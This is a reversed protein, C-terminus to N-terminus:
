NRNKLLNEANEAAQKTEASPKVATYVFKEKQTTVKIQRSLLVNKVYESLYANEAAFKHLEEYGELHNKLLQENKKLYDQLFDIFAGERNMEQFHEVIYDAQLKEPSLQLEREEKLFVSGADLIEQETADTCVAGKFATEADKYEPSELVTKQNYEMYIQTMQGFRDSLGADKIERGQASLNARIASGFCKEQFEDKLHSAIKCKNYADLSVKVADPDTNGDYDRKGDYVEFAEKMHAEIDQGNPVSDLILRFEEATMAPMDIKDGPKYGFRQRGTLLSNIGSIWTQWDGVIDEAAMLHNVTKPPLQFLQSRLYNIHNQMETMIHTLRELQDTSLTIIAGPTMPIQRIEEAAQETRQAMEEIVKKKATEDAGYYANFKEQNEKALKEDSLVPRGEADFHVTEMWGVYKRASKLENKVHGNCAYYYNASSDEMDYKELMRQRYARISEEYPPELHDIKHALEKDFPATDAAKKKKYQYINEERQRYDTQQQPTRLVEGLGATLYQKRWAYTTSNSSVKDQVQHMKQVSDSIMGEIGAAAEADADDAAGSEAIVKLEQMDRIYAETIKEKQQLQAPVDSARSINSTDRLIAIMWLACNNLLETARNKQDGSLSKMKAFNERLTDLLPMKDASYENREAPELKEQAVAAKVKFNQIIQMAKSRQKFRQKREQRIQKRKRFRKLWSEHDVEQQQFKTLPAAEDYDEGFEKLRQKMVEDTERTAQKGEKKQFQDSLLTMQTQDEQENYKLIEKQGEMLEMSEVPNLDDGM